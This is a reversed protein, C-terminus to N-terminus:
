KGFGLRQLLYDLLSPTEVGKKYMSPANPPFEVGDSRSYATFLRVQADQDQVYPRISGLTEVLTSQLGVEKKPRMVDLIFTTNSSKNLEDKIVEVGITDILWYRVVFKQTDDQWSFVTLAPYEYAKEPIELSLSSAASISRAELHERIAGELSTTLPQWHAADDEIHVIIYETTDTKSM